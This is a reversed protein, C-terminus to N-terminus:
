FPPDNPASAWPDDVPGASTGTGQTRQMAAPKATAFKLSPAIEEAVIEISKRENGDKDTWSRSRLEGVVIVRTGKTLTEAANEAMPGFIKVDWFITNVDKWQKTDNDYARKSVAIATFGYAKGNASFKLEFDRTLNGVFAHLDSM